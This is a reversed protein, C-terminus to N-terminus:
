PRSLHHSVKEFVLYALCPSLYFCGNTYLPAPLTMRGHAQVALTLSVLYDDHNDTPDVFWHMTRLAGTRYTALRCQRWFETLNTPDDADLYTHIRGSPVVALLASIGTM